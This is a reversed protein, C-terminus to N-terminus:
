LPKINRKELRVPRNERPLKDSDHRAPIAPKVVTKEKQVKPAVTSSSAQVSDVAVETYLSDTAHFRMLSVRDITLTRPLSQIPYYVFGRVEKIAGLTDASLSLVYTGPQKVRQLVDLVTDTKYEVQLAMVPLHITDTGMGELYRFRATWKLTDRAHYNTDAVLAFALKNNFPTGTLQYLPLDVWVDVSDGAPSMKPRNDRIAILSNYRDRQAKLRKNVREYIDAIVTPNRSFWVMSTDFQAETIGHKRFVEDIYLVRKYSENYPIEEGMARAIHYDYLIDEMKDDPLVTDPREVKCASLALVVLVASCRFIRKWGNGVNM